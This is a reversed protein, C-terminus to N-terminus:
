IPIQQCFVTPFHGKFMNMKECRNGFPNIYMYWGTPDWREEKKGKKLLENSKEDGFILNRYVKSM